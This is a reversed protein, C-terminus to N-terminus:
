GRAGRIDDIAARVSRHARLAVKKRGEEAFGIPEGFVLEVDWPGSRVLRRLHPVLTQDGIWAARAGRRRDLAVGHLRTYVITAPQVLLAEGRREALEAAAGFLTSKFPLLHIGDSTTGEAFLVLPDGAALRDAVARAQDQAQRRERREVFVTAQSRFLPGLLPWGAVEAKAIFNMPAAAGLVMIDTWSVHNAAILLPRQPAVNGTVRVRIGLLRLVMAHWLRAPRRPDGIHLLRSLAQWLVLGGTGFVFLVLRVALCLDARM